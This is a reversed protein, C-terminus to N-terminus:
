HKIASWAKQGGTVLALAAIGAIIGVLGNLGMALLSDFLKDFAPIVNIQETRADIWHHIVPIGHSIIGGGVLFMAATGVFSLTKMLYPAVQLIYNGIRKYLSEPKQILHLGLDDLRLIAAVLGYVGITLAIGIVVLAIFQDLLTKGVMTGLSIVVIEASLIFDTRIAGKIKTNEMAQLHEIDVETKERCELASDSKATNTKEADTKKADARHFLTHAVKEVGEFCLYLGGFMLLILVGKEWFASILLALPILIAKNLFSGKAVRWVIPLERDSRVGTIQQANLALDDGLVGATKKVALKSMLAIDDLITAIDDILALLSAGAM